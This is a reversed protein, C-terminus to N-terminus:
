IGGNKGKQLMSELYLLGKQRELSLKEEVEKNNNRKFDKNFDDLKTEDGAVFASCGFKHLLTEIRSFQEVDNRKFVFFPTEMIISFASAHFSDTFVAQAGDILWVFEDPSPIEDGNRYFGGAISVIKYQNIHAFREIEQQVKENHESLFYTVIYKENQLVTESESFVEKWEEKGLLFVPDPLIPAQINTLEKIINQGDYERISLQTFELLFEKYISKLNNPITKVGFSPAYTFRKEKPVFQLFYLKADRKNKAMHSPSWIQDSGAIVIADTFDIKYLKKYSIKKLYLKNNFPRFEERKKRDNLWICQRNHIIPFYSCLDKIRSKYTNKTSKIELTVPDAGLKRIAQCLAFNQLRSGYNNYQYYTAIYCKMYGRRRREKRSKPLVMGRVM